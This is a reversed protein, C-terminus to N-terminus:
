NYTLTVIAKRHPTDLWTTKMSTLQAPLAQQARTQGTIYRARQNTNPCRTKVSQNDVDLQCTPETITGVFSITGTNALASLSFGAILCTAISLNKFVM